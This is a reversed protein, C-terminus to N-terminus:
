PFKEEALGPLPGFCLATWFICAPRAPSAFITQAIQILVRRIAAGPPMKVVHESLQARGEIGM